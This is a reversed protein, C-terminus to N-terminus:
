AASAEREAGRHQPDREAGRSRRAGVLLCLGSRRGIARHPCAPRPPLAVGRSRHLLILDHHLHLGRLLSNRPLLPLLLGEVRRVPPSSCFGRRRATTRVLTGRKVAQATKETCSKAAGYTETEGSSLSPIRLRNEPSHAKM